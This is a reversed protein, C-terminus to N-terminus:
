MNSLFMNFVSKTMWQHNVFKRKLLLPYWKCMNLGSIFDHATYAGFGSESAHYVHLIFHRNKYNKIYCIHSKM